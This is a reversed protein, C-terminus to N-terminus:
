DWMETLRGAQQNQMNRSGWLTKKVTKEKWNESNEKSQAKDRHLIMVLQKRIAHCLPGRQRKPTGAFARACFGRAEVESGCFLQGNKPGVTEGVFKQSMQGVPCRCVQTREASVHQAEWPCPEGVVSWSRLGRHLSAFTKTFRKFKYLLSLFFFFVLHKHHNHQFFRTKRSGFLSHRNVDAAHGSWAWNVMHKKQAESTHAAEENEYKQPEDDEEFDLWVEEKTNKWRKGTGGRETM